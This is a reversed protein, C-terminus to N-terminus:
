PAAADVPFGALSSSIGMVEMRGCRGLGTEAGAKKDFGGCDNHTEETTGLGGPCARSECGYSTEQAQGSEHESAPGSRLCCLPRTSTVM